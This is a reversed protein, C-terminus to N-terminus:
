TELFALSAHQILAAPGTWAATGLERCAFGSYTKDCSSMYFAWVELDGTITM